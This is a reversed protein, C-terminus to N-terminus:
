LAFDLFYGPSLDMKLNNPLHVTSVWAKVNVTGSAIPLAIYILGLRALFVVGANGPGTAQQIKLTYFDPYM